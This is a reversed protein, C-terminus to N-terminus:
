FSTLLRPLLFIIHRYLSLILYRLLIAEFHPVHVFQEIIELTIHYAYIYTYIYFKCTLIIYVYKTHM